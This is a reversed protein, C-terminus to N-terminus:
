EDAADSTYLLCPAFQEIRDGEKVLWRSLTGEIVGEGMEPLTVKSAM